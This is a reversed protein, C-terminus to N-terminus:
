TFTYQFTWLSNSVSWVLKVVVFFLLNTKFEKILKLVLFIYKLKNFSTSYIDIKEIILWVCILGFGMFFVFLFYFSPKKFIIINIFLTWDMKINLYIYRVFKLSSYYGVSGLMLFFMYCTLLTYGFFQITQLGGSMNSRKIYFFCAYM